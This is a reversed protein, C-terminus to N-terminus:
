QMYKAYIVSSAINIIINSIAMLLFAITTMYPSKINSKIKNYENNDKDTLTIISPIVSKNIRM